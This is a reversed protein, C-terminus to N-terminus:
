SIEKSMRNFQVKFKQKEWFNNGKSNNQYVNLNIKKMGNQNLWEILKEYLIKGYGKQQFNSKIYFDDILSEKGFDFIPHQQNIFGIIYGVIVDDIVAIIINCDENNMCDVTHARLFSLANSKLPSKSVIKSHYEANEFRLKLLSEMDINGASKIEM